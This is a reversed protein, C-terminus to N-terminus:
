EKARWISQCYTLLKRTIKNTKKREKREFRLTVKCVLVSVWCKVSLYESFSVLFILYCYFGCNTPNPSFLSGCVIHYQHKNINFCDSKRETSPVLDLVEQTSLLWCWQAVSELRSCDNRPMYYPEYSFSCRLFVVQFM